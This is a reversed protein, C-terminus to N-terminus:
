HWCCLLCQQTYEHSHTHTHTDTHIEIGFWRLCRCSFSTCCSSSNSVDLTAPLIRDSTPNHGSKNQKSENEKNICTNLGRCGTGEEWMCVSFLSISYVYVGVCPLSDKAYEDCVVCAIKPQTVQKNPLIRSADMKSNGTNVYGARFHWKSDTSGRCICPLKNTSSTSSSFLFTNNAITRADIM